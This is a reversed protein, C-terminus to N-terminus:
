WTSRAARAASASFRRRRGTVAVHRDACRPSASRATRRAYEDNGVRILTLRWCACSARGAGEGRPLGPRARPRTWGGASRRCRARRLRAHRDFKTADGRERWRAHYRYQKRGKADRGRPRSTAMPRRAIWVDTWAPPIALARIRRRAASDRVPSGDAAVYRFGRGARFRRYARTDDSVYRLAAEEATARSELWGGPSRGARLAGAHAAGRWQASPARGGSGGPSGRRRIPALGKGPASRWEDDGKRIRPPDDAGSAAEAKSRPSRWEHRRPSVIAEGAGPTQALLEPERAVANKKSLWCKDDIKM